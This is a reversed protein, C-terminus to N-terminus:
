PVIHDLMYELVASLPLTYGDDVLQPIACERCVLVDCALVLCFLVRCALVVGVLLCVQMCLLMIVADMDCGYRGGDDQKISAKNIARRVVVEGIRM